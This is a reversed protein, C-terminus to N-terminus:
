IVGYDHSSFGNLRHLGYKRIPLFVFSIDSDSCVIRGSTSLNSARIAPKFHFGKIGAPTKPNRQVVFSKTPDFDRLLESTLGGIVEIAPKIFIKIGTQPDSPIKMNFIQGDTLEIEAEDIYVCLLDTDQEMLTLFTVSSDEETKSRVEIKNIVVEARVVQEIPFPADTVKVVLTGSDDAAIDITVRECGIFISVSLALIALFFKNM